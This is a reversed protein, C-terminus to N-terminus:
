RPVVRNPSESTGQAERVLDVTACHFSGGISNVHRFPCRIVEMGREELWRAFDKDNEEVVVRKEDLSLINLVLWPSTMYFLPADPLKPKFPYPQLDWNEFVDHRHLEGASVREPNYVLFGERLPLITADIHMAHPDDVELIEVSYGQPVVSRLYQVGAQNTVNSLQGVLTKGFRLFDAADFAPRSNNIPWKHHGNTETTKTNYITDPHPRKPARVIRSNVNSSLKALLRGYALEIEFRRCQWAFPAEIITNGVTMLGDRPMAGTYGGIEHWDVHEPRHVQVGREKLLSAFADLEEEAKRVIEPPFPHNARFEHQHQEPMTAAIMNTPESPFCSNKARGVIISRLTSWENDANILTLTSLSM